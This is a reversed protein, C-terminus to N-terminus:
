TTHVHTHRCTETLKSQLKMDYRALFGRFLKEGPKGSKKVEKQAIPNNVFLSWVRQQQQQDLPQYREMHSALHHEQSMKLQAIFDQIIPKFLKSSFSIHKNTFGHHPINTVPRRRQLNSTKLM